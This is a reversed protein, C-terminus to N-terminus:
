VLSAHILSYEEGRPSVYFPRYGNERMAGVCDNTQAIGITEFAHHFEVLVQGIQIGRRLVDSLVAYEAGEIDLKLVDLHDHGLEDMLTTLRRVEAEVARGADGENRSLTYSADLPNKPANFTATGDFDAIGVPHFIFSPPLDHAAIWDRSRPTPDFAHIQVGCAEILALDFSADEGVGFSYVTSDSSLVRTCLAWGGYDSGLFSFDLEIEPRHAVDKGIAALSLRRMLRATDKLSDLMLDPTGDRTLSM